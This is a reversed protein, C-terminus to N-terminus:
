LTGLYIWCPLDQYNVSPMVFGHISWKSSTMSKQNKWEFLFYAANSM